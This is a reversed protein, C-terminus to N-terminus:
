IDADLRAAEGELGSRLRRVEAEDSLKALLSPWVSERYQSV